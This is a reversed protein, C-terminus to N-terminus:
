NLYLVPNLSKEGRRIEFHLQPRDVNGTQGVRAVPQGRKVVDGQRVLLESNHAYTTLWGEAHKILLMQGFGKLRSGAYVVVGNEAARVPTGSKVAINIGDNFIGDAKPGFGSIIKGQVPRLFRDSSRALPEPVSPRQAANSATATRPAPRRKPLVTAQRVTLTDQAPVSVTVTPETVQPVEEFRVAVEQNETNQQELVRQEVAGPLELRQGVFLTYPEQLSNREVLETISLNYRLSLSYITDGKVVLHERSEPIVVTQGIGLTYPEKLDNQTVLARVSVGYARSLSFLTDGAKVRHTKAGSREAVAEVLPASPEESPGDYVYFRPRRKLVSVPFREYRRPVTRVSSLNVEGTEANWPRRKPVPPFTRSSPKVTRVDVTQGSQGPNKSPLLSCASLGVILLASVSFVRIM